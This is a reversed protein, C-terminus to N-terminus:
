HRLMLLTALEQPRSLAPCHGSDIEEPIIGLRQRVVQQLWHAPFLRDRRCLIFRTKITPWAALPWPQKGPTDSQHRGGRQLAEEALDRPVDQYFVALTSNDDLPEPRWGTAVFM